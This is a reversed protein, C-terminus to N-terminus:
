WALASASFKCDVILNGQSEVNQKHPKYRGCLHKVL